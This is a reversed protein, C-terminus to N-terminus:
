EMLISLKMKKRPVNQNRVILRNPQSEIHMFGRERERLLFAVGKTTEREDCQNEKQKFNRLLKNVLISHM